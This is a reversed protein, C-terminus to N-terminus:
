GWAQSLAPQVHTAGSVATIKVLPKVAYSSWHELGEKACQAKINISCHVIAISMMIIMRMWDIDDASCPVFFQPLTYCTVYLPHHRQHRGNRYNMIENIQISLASLFIKTM